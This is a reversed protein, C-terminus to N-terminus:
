LGVWKVIGPGWWALAALLLLTSILGIAQDKPGYQM